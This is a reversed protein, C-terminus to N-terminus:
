ESEDKNRIDRFLSQVAYRALMVISAFNQVLLAPLLWEYVEFNWRGEGVLILLVTQFGVLVSIIFMLFFSWCKKQKYHDRIGDLHALKIESEVSKSAFLKSFRDQLSTWSNSQQIDTKLRRILVPSSPKSQSPKKTDVEKSM